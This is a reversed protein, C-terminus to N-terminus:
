AEPWKEKRSESLLSKMGDWTRVVRWISAIPMQRDLGSGEGTRWVYRVVQEIDRSLRPMECKTVEM